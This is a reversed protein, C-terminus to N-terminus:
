SLHPSQSVFLRVQTGSGAGPRYDNALVLDITQFTTAPRQDPLQQTQTVHSIQEQTLKNDTREYNAQPTTHAVPLVCIPHSVSPQVAGLVDAALPERRELQEGTLRYGRFNRRNLNKTFM